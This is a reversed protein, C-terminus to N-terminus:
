LRGRSDRLLRREKRLALRLIRRLVRIPVPRLLLLRVLMQQLLQSLIM